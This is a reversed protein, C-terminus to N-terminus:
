EYPNERLFTRHVEKLHYRDLQEAHAMQHVQYSVAMLNDIDDNKNAGHFIHHINVAPIFVRKVIWSYECAIDDEKNLNFHKIYKEKYNM